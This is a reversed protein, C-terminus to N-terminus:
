WWKGEFIGAEFTGADFYGYAPMPTLRQLWPRSQIGFIELCLRDVIIGASIPPTGGFIPAKHQKCVWEKMVEKTIDQPLRPALRQVLRMVVDETLATEADVELFDEMTMSTPTFLFIRTGFGVVNCNLVPVGYKRATQHLLIRAKIEFFEIEDCIITAGQVFDDVNDSTIGSTVVDVEFDDAIERIESFTSEAKNKGLTKTKSAFQRNLNSIDFNQNDSIKLHGVGIRALSAAILGGMGGCGAIAVTAARLQEQEALSIIGLNRDIREYYSVM